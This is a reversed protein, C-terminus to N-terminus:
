APVSSYVAVKSKISEEIIIMRTMMNAQRQDFGIYRSEKKCLEKLKLNYESTMYQLVGVYTEAIGVISNAKPFDYRLIAKNYKQHLKSLM